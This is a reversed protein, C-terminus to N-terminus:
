IRYLFDLLNKQMINKFSIILLPDIYLDEESSEQFLDPYDHIKAGGLCFASRQDMKGLLFLFLSLSLFPSLYM